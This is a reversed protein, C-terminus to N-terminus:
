LPLKMQGESAIPQPKELGEVIATALELAADHRLRENPATIGVRAWGPAALLMSALALPSPTDM